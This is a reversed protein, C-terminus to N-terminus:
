HRQVDAFGNCQITGRIRRMSAIAALIQEASVEELCHLTPEVAHLCASTGDPALALMSVNALRPDVSALANPDRRTVIVVQAGAAMAAAILDGDTRMGRIVRLEPNQELVSSVVEELM